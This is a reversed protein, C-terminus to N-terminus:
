VYDYISHIYSTMVHEGHQRDPETSVSCSVNELYLVYKFITEKFINEHFTVNTHSFYQHFM